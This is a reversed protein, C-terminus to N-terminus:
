TTLFEAILRRAIVYAPSTPLARQVGARLDDGTEPMNDIWTREGLAILFTRGM